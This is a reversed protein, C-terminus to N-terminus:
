QGDLNESRLIRVTSLLHNRVLLVQGLLYGFHIFAHLGTRSGGNRLPRPELEGVGEATAFSFRDLRTTGLSPAFWSVVVEATSTSQANEQETRQVGKVM